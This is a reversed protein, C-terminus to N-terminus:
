ICGQILTQPPCDHQKKEYRDTMMTTTAFRCIRLVVLVSIMLRATASRRKMTMQTGNVATEYAMVTQGKPVAHHM